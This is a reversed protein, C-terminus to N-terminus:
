KAWKKLADKLVSAKFLNSDESSVDKRGAKQLWRVLCTRVFSEEVESIWPSLTFRIGNIFDPPLVVAIHDAKMTERTTVILRSESEFSWEIDKVRGVADASRCEKRLNPIQKSFFGNWYLNNSREKEEDNWKVAAYTVDTFDRKYIALKGLGKGKALIRHCRSELLSKMALDPVTIRIAKYTKPCYLGWMAASERLGYSFCTIFTKEQKKKAGIGYKKGEILDDFLESDVRTLWMCPKKGTLMSELRDLSTYHSYNKHCIYKGSMVRIAESMTKCASFADCHEEMNM